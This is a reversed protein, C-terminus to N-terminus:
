TFLELIDAGALGTRSPTDSARGNEVLDFRGARGVLTVAAPGRRACGKACGSVHLRGRVKGALPRAFVRTEVQASACHPAGPCAAVDLIPDGPTHLFAPHTVPATNELFLLRWPTIRIHTPRATEVLDCLDGAKMAGFPVGLVHGGIAAGPVPHPGSPAPETTQWVEPLATQALHRSMRGSELGGTDVFWRALDLATDIAKAEDVARGRRAGEARLILGDDGTELRLDGSVGTLMPLPGADVVFGMKGPFDPFEALRDTLARTLRETRDGEQWFPATVITRRAEIEPDNDVLDAKKLGDLLEPYHAESVGRIQLNARSTLDIMGNGHRQALEALALTQGVTLRAMRPKVRVLLGDGSMMPRYASPCWGKVSAGSM